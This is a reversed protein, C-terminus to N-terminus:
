NKLYITQTFAGDSAIDWAEMRVWTRNKLSLNISSKWTEFPKSREVEVREHYVQKGDGSVVEIFDLPFTHTITANLTVEGSQPLMLTEGARKGEISFDPILVEGTTSFFHGQEMDDLVPQWGEDFTPLQDMKLYNINMHAYMENEATISFLDSEAIVKKHLGWNNMDDLLDLVRTGLRRKSLDAPMAKWAGGLFRDSKFFFREKYADPYGTSGKIRPHATWALGKEDQLLQLMETSDKIHYVKGYGEKEEVYPQDENRDMVWYVPHPFINMWHGGFFENPEEGPMLLFHEDSVQKCLKFLDHLEALRLSDPGKPHATYHFEGLHVMDVGMAKFVNVFAPHQPVSDGSRLVQMVYENHFHSAMTKYGPLPAYSDSHTYQKIQELLAQSGGEGIQCFFRLRQETNPPANFWPVFRHDGMPDQRIGLGYGSVADRYEKGQWVFALNFAEDLPYFYHHSPPFIAFSGKEQSGMITRYKVKLNTSPANNPDSDKFSGDAAAYSVKQLLNKWQLGADYLLATSDKATTVVAAFEVLPTSEFITIEVRGSFTDSAVEDISVVTRKHHKTVKASRKELQLVETHFPRTPVKDFFVTWGNEPRLERKGVTLVFALDANTMIKEKSGKGLIKMSQILPADKEMNLVLEQEHDAVPWTLTLLTGKSTTKCTNETANKPLDITTQAACQATCWLLTLLLRYNM